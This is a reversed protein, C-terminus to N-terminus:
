RSILGNNISDDAQRSQGTLKLYMKNNRTIGRMLIM